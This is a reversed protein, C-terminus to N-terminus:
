GVSLWGPYHVSVCVGLSTATCTPSSDITGARLCGEDCNVWVVLVGTVGTFDEPHRDENM